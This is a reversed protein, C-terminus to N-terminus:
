VRKSFRNFPPHVLIMISLLVPIGELQQLLLSTTGWEPVSAATVGRRRTRFEAAADVDCVADFRVGWLGLLLVPCTCSTLFAAASRQAHICVHMVHRFWRVCGIEHVNAVFCPHAFM